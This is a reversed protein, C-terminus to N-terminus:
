DPLKQSKTVIEGEQLKSSKSRLEDLLSMGGSNGKGTAGAEALMRREEEFTAKPTPANATYRKPLTQPQPAQLPVTEEQM